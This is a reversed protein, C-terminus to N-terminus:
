LIPDTLLFKEKEPNKLLYSQLIRQTELTNKKRILFRDLDEYSHITEEKQVFGYGAYKGNEIWIFAQEEITRGKEQVVFNQYQGKLGDIAKIVRSNYSAADEKETCIGKCTTISYHSCYEVGEQLHCYKPCLEFSTCIEQLATRCDTPSYFTAIPNPAAKLKNHALHIIGNRDEYSFIAYQQITRKQARNFSPYHHKIADSEMLLAVLESGSLEFDIDATDQCM